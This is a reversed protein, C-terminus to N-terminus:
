DGTISFRDITEAFKQPSPMWSRFAELWEAPTRSLTERNRRVTNGFQYVLTDFESLAEDLTMTDGM